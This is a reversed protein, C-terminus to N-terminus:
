CADIFYSDNKYSSTIASYIHGRVLYIDCLYVFLLSQTEGGAFAKSYLNIDFVSPRLHNSGALLFSRYEM